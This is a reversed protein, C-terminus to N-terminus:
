FLEGQILLASSAPLPLPLSVSASLTPKSKVKLWATPEEQAACLVQVEPCHAEALSKLIATRALDPSNCDQSLHGLVVQELAPHALEALLEAVQHNSLHGHQSMIRQKTSWPRKTDNQLLTGDYNAEVFLTHLCALRRRIAQTVHGLDSLVAMASEGNSIHYGVPDVADHPVSFAEIRLPGLAFPQGSQIIRWIKESKCADRLVQRTLANCYIPLPHRKTLVDLGRCHDGHEHTLIIGSLDQPSLGVAQLRGLIQAASLGADVLVHCDQFSIVACNGASGSGLVCLKM